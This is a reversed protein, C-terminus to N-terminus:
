HLEGFNNNLKTLLVFLETPNQTNWGWVTFANAFSNLYKREKPLQKSEINALLENLEPLIVEKIQEITSEGKIGQTRNSIEKECIDICELLEKKYEEIFKSKIMFKM